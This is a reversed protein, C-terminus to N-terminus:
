KDKWHNMRRMERKVDSTVNLAMFQGYTGDDNRGLLTGVTAVFSAGGALYLDRDPWATRFADFRRRATEVDGGKFSDVVSLAQVRMREEAPVASAASGLGGICGDLVNAATLFAGTSARSHADADLQLGQDRCSGFDKIKQMQEYRAERFSADPPPGGSDAACAGLGLLVTGALMARALAAANITQTM